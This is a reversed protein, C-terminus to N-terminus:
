PLDSSVRSWAGLRVRCRPVSWFAVATSNSMLVRQQFSSRRREDVEDKEDVEVARELERPGEEVVVLRELEKLFRCSDCRCLMPAGSLLSSSCALLCLLLSWSALLLRSFLLSSMLPCSLLLSSWSLSSLVLSVSASQVDCM